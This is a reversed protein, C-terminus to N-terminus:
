PLSRRRDTTFSDLDLIVEHQVLVRHLQLGHLLARLLLEREREISLYGALRLDKPVAYVHSDWLNQLVRLLQLPKPQVKLALLGAGLWFPEFKRHPRVTPQSKEIARATCSCKRLLLKCDAVFPLYYGVLHKIKHSPPFM